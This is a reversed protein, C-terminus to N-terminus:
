GRNKWRELVVDLNTFQPGHQPVHVEYKPDGGTRNYLFQIIRSSFDRVTYDFWEGQSM